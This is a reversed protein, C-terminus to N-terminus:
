QQDKKHGYFYIIKFFFISIVISRLGPGLYDMEIFWLGFLARSDRESTICFFDMGWCREKGFHLNFLEFRHREM